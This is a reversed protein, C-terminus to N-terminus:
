YVNRLVSLVCVQLGSMTNFGTFVMMFAISMIAINYNKVTNVEM